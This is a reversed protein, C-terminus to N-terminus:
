PGVPGSFISRMLYDMLPSRHKLWERDAYQREAQQQAWARGMRCVSTGPFGSGSSIPDIGINKVGNRLLFGAEIGACHIVVEVSADVESQGLNVALPEGMEFLKANVGVVQHVGAGVQVHSGVDKGQAHPLMAIRPIGYAGVMGACRRPAVAIRSGNVLAQSCHSLYRLPCAFLGRM